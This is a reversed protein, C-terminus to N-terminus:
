KCFIHGNNTMVCQFKGINCLYLSPVSLNAQAAFRCNDPEAAEAKSVTCSRIWESGVMVVAFLIVVSFWGYVHHM